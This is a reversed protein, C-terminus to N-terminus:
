IWAAISYRSRQDGMVFGQKQFRVIQGGPLQVHRTNAKTVALLVGTVPPQDEVYVTIPTAANPNFKM